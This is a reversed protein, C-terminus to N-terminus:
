ETDPAGIIGIDIVPATPEPRDDPPAPTQEPPIVVEPLNIEPTNTETAEPPTTHAPTPTAAAPTPTAEPEPTQEPEDTEEPEPTEEPEVDFINTPQNIVPTNFSKYELGAHIPQMVKKWIDLAPNDGNIKEPMDYGAWCAAVYYPTFGCFYRDRFDGSSGTKGSVSMGPFYAASAIGKTVDLMDCMNAATNSSFAKVTEPENELIIAGDSDTVRTYTRSYTFFGDNVFSCYAQAMERVTVGNTFEGLALPAYNRDEEILSTFGLRTTLFDYSADCGIKDLIQASVTNLSLALAKRVTVVGYYGGANRPYWDPKGELTIGGGPPADNVLTTQTIYGFEMAPGYVSLPKISSGPPRQSVTARNLGFNITKEGVGGRLAVISGTYPDMIVMASQPQQESARNFRPLGDLDEYVADMQDQIDKDLCCYIQYGGNYLLLRAADITINKQEMLDELVDNIVTEEYYSYIHQTYGENEARVFNLEEKVARTYENYTIYGQDYMEYLITEQRRKNWERNSYSKGTEPDTIMAAGFPDYKSPNNTIGVISACEALSLDWVDKGFYTQAATQIGYCGQGFYVINLYWEVIQEKTYTKEMELAQFIEVMKRQVTVDDKGTLNKILQQTLTSGGFNNSMTLFMSGFAGATRYWDVGKHNYFRKDEISVLAHEMDEPINEYDVWIRNTTSNLTVLEQSQGESDTYWITSSLSVAFDDLSIDLNTSLSTKVYFAFICAFLLGTTVFILLVTLVTRLVLRLIVGITMAATDAVREVRQRTNKPKDEKM